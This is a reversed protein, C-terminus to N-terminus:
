KDRSDLKLNGFLLDKIMKWDCVKTLLPNTYYTAPKNKEFYKHGPWAGAYVVFPTFLFLPFFLLSFFCSLTVFFVYFLTLLNGAIHMLKNVPHKHAQLYTPYFEEIEKRSPIKLRNFYDLISKIM